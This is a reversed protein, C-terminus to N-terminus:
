ACIERFKLARVDVYSAGKRGQRRVADDAIGVKHIDLPSHVVELGDIPNHVPIGAENKVVRDAVDGAVAVNVPLRHSERQAIGHVFDGEGLSGGCQMAGADAEVLVLRLGCLNM